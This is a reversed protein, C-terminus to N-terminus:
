GAHEREDGAVEGVDGAEGCGVEGVGLAGAAAPHRETRHQEHQPEGSDEDRHAREEAVDAVVEFGVLLEDTLDGARQHDEHAQGKM